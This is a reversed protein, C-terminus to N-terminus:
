LDKKEVLSCEGDCIVNWQKSATSLICLENKAAQSNFQDKTFLEGPEVATPFLSRYLKKREAEVDGILDKFFQNACSQLVDMFEYYASIASRTESHIGAMEISLLICDDVVKAADKSESFSDYQGQTILEKERLKSIISPFNAKINKALDGRHKIVAKYEPLKQDEM